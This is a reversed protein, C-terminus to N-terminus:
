GKFNVNIKEAAAIDIISVSGMGKKLHNAIKHAGNSEAYEVISQGNCSVKLALMKSTLHFPKKSKNFKHMKNSKAAKCVEVLSSEMYPSMAAQSPAIFSFASVTTVLAIITNKVSNM